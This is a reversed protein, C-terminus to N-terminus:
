NIIKVIRGTLVQNFWLKDVTFPNNFGTLKPKSNKRHQELTECIVDNNNDFGVVLIISKDNFKKFTVEVKKGFYSEVNM